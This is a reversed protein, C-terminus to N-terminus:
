TIHIELAAAVDSTTPSWSGDTDVRIYIMDGASFTYTGIAATASNQQNSSNIEVTLGTPVAEFTCTGASIAANSAGALATISGARVAISRQIITAATGEHRRLNLNSESAGLNEYYWGDLWCRNVENVGTEIDDVMKSSFVPMIYDGSSHASATTGEQARICSTLSSGSKNVARILERNLDGAPNTKTSSWIVCLYGNTPTPFDTDDTLPITSDGSGIGSSLTTIAFNPRDDLTLFAM